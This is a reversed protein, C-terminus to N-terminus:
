NRLIWRANIRGDAAFNRLRRFFTLGSSAPESVRPANSSIGFRHSGQRLVCVAGALTLADKTHHTSPIHSTTSPLTIYHLTSFLLASPLSISFIRFLFHFYYCSPLRSTELQHDLEGNGLQEEM